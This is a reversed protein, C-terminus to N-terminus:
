GKYSYSFVIGNRDFKETHYLIVESGSKTVHDVPHRKEPLNIVRMLKLNKKSDSPCHPLNSKMKQCFAYKREKRKEKKNEKELFFNLYKM